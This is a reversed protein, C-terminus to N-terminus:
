DETYFLILRRLAQQCAPCFRDTDNVRMRCIDAPRYVGHFSYGGGEFVGVTHRAVSVSDAPTPVPTDKELLNEWKGRFNTLTTINPEWPEIDLPYTDSMVDQEYFYEDALGGFSHGFEHVVVPKFDPNGTNTLTYSNFIGGGGYTDTNALIIIHQYPTGALADHVDRLNSTTLYRDSLFTSFHSSFATNRWIGQAPHSVNSHSSPVDVCFFDFRDSLSRFPEHSFVADVTQRAYKHFDKMQAATFGEPLIAVEIKRGAYSGVHVPVVKFPSKELRRVLIDTTSFPMTHRAIVDHRANRVELTILADRRPLPMIVPCEFARSVSDGIELWESYLSSLGKVYLTDATAKDTVVISLNGALPYRGLRKHRGSWGDFFSSAAVSVAPQRATGSLIYDVRLTSDAFDRAFVSGPGAGHAAPLGAVAVLFALALSSLLNKRVPNM